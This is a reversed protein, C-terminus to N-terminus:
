SRKCQDIQCQTAAKSENSQLRSQALNPPLPYDLLTSDIQAQDRIDLATDSLQVVLDRRIRAKALLEPNTVAIHCGCMSQLRSVRLLPELLDHLRLDARQQIFVPEVRGVFCLLRNCPQRLAPSSRRRLVPPFHM